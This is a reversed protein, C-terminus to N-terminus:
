SQPVPMVQQSLLTEIQKFNSGRNPLKVEIDLLRSPSHFIRGQFLFWVSDGAVLPLCCLKSDQEDFRWWPVLLNCFSEMTVYTEKSEGM